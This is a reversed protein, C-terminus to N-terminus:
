YGRMFMRALGFTFRFLLKFYWGAVTFAVTFLVVFLKLLVVLVVKLVLFTMAAAPALLLLTKEM